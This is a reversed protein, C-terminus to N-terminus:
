PRGNGASSRITKTSNRILTKRKWRFVKNNEYQKKNNNNNKKELNQARSKEFDIRGIEVMKECITPRSRFKM